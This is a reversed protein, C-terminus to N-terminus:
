ATEFSVFYGNHKRINLAKENDFVLYQGKIGTLTGTLTKEKDFSFSKIKELKVMGPYALRHIENDDCVYKKLERPLLETLKEKEPVLDIENNAEGKLMAQWNTRDDVHKKLFVEIIGAIHRNPTRALKIAQSAGQDIWRGPIQHYRTVGVKLNSTVSLYVFHDILDHERAWDMDRAIGLHAKSLEPRVVCEDAEPATKFCNFCFGQSFSKNTKKGCHICNIVGNHALSIIKNLLPNLHIDEGNIPLYYDVPNNNEPKMKILNGSVKM